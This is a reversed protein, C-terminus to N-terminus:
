GVTEPEERTIRDGLFRLAEQRAQERNHNGLVIETATIDPGLGKIRFTVEHGQPHAEVRALVEVQQKEM